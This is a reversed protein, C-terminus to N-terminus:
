MQTTTPPSTFLLPKSIEILSQELSEQNARKVNIIRKSLKTSQTQLYKCNNLLPNLILRNGGFFVFDMTYGRLKEEIRYSVKRLFDKRQEETRRAFRKQSSGGKKHEKHIHGTGVKSNLLSDDHFVGVAYSGWTVLIIGLTYQKEMIEHLDFLDFSGFTVKDEIVPFPPLVLYTPGFEQWFIAMGTGYKETERCIIKDNFLASIKDNCTSYEPELLIRDSFSSFSSAKIYLSISDGHGASQEGLIRDLKTKTIAQKEM